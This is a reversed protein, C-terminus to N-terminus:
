RYNLLAVQDFRSTIRANEVARPDLSQRLWVEVLVWVFWVPLILQPLVQVGEMALLGGAAIFSLLLSFGLEDAEGIRVRFVVRRGLLLLTYIYGGLFILGGIVGLNTGVQLFDSHVWGGGNWGLGFPNELMSDWANFIRNKREIASSDTPKLTLAAIGSAVRENTKPIVQYGGVAVVLCVLAVAVGQRGLRLVCAIAIQILLVLWISRYGAIYIAIIQLAAAAIIVARQIRGSLWQRLVIACPLALVCVFVATAGGWFSFAARSFGDAAINAKPNSMFAPFLKATSPFWYEIVGMLAIWTSAVFFALLLRRWYDQRQLVVSLMVMLPVLLVFDRFENLMQDWPADSVVLPWWAFIWFPISLWLWTPFMLRTNSFLHRQMLISAVLLWLLLEAPHIRLDPTYTITRYGLALTLVWLVSGFQIGREGGFVIIGGALAGFVVILEKYSVGYQLAYLEMAFAGAVSVAIAIPIKRFVQVGRLREIM